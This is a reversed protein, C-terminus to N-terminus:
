SAPKYILGSVSLSSSSPYSTSSKVPGSTNRSSSTTSYTGVLMDRNPRLVSQAGLQDCHMAEAEEKAAHLCSVTLRSVVELLRAQPSSRALVLVPATLPLDCYSAHWFPREVSNVHQLTVSM